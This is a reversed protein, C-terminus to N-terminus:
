EEFFRRIFIELFVLCEGLYWFKVSKAPLCVKHLFLFAHVIIHAIKGRQGLWPIHGSTQGAPCSQVACLPPRAQCKLAMACAEPDPDAVRCDPRQDGETNPCRVSREFGLNLCLAQRKPTSGADASRQTPKLHVTQGHRPRRTTRAPTSYIDSSYATSPTSPLTEGYGFVSDSGTPRRSYPLCKDSSEAAGQFCRPFYLPLFDSPSARVQPM